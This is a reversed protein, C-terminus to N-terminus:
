EPSAYNKWPRDRPVREILSLAVGYVNDCGVKKRKRCPVRTLLVSRVVVYYFELRYLVLEERGIIKARSLEERRQITFRPFSGVVLKIIIM